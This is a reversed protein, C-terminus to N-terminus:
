IEIHSYAVIRVKEMNQTLAKLLSSQTVINVIDNASEDVKEFLFFFPRLNASPPFFIFCFIFRCCDCWFWQNSNLSNGFVIEFWIWWGFARADFWCCCLSFDFKHYVSTKHPINFVTKCCRGLLVHGSLVCSKVLWLCASCTALLMIANFLVLLLLLVNFFFFFFFFFLFSALAELDYFVESTKYRLYVLLDWCRNVSYM